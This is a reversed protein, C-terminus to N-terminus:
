WSAEIGSDEFFTKIKREIFVFFSQSPTLLEYENTIAIRDEETFKKSLDGYLLLSTRVLVEFFQHRDITARKDGRNESDSQVAM